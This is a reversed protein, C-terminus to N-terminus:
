RQLLKALWEPDSTSVQKGDVLVAPVSRTAISHEVVTKTREAAKRALPVQAGSIIAQVAKDPAGAQRALAALQENSLDVTDDERPQVAADYLMTHFAAFLGPQDGATKAVALM